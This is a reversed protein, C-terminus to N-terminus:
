TRYESDLERRWKEYNERAADKADPSTIRNFMWDLKGKVNEYGDKMVHNRVFIEANTEFYSVCDADKLANQEADGGEEHRSILHRVKAITAEDAGERRLFDAALRSGDEEHQRVFDMDWYQREREKMVGREIDHAYAAIKHAETSEPYLKEMWYVTREFHRRQKGGFAEDVFRVTKDYLTM